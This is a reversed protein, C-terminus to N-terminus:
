KGASQDRYEEHGEDSEGGDDSTEESLIYAVSRVYCLHNISHAYRDAANTQYFFGESRQELAVKREVVDCKQRDTDTDDATM